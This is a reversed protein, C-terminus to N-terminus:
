SRIRSPADLSVLPGPEEVLLTNEHLMNQLFLPSFIFFPFDLDLM